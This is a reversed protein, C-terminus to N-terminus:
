RDDSWIETLALGTLHKEEEVFYRFEDSADAFVKM